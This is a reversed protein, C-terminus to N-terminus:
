PAVTAGAEKLKRMVRDEIGSSAQFALAEADGKQRHIPAALYRDFFQGARQGFLRDQDVDHGRVILNARELRDLLDALHQSNLDVGCFM